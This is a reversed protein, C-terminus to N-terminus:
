HLNYFPSTVCVCLGKGFSARRKPVPKIIKELAIFNILLEFLLCQLHM